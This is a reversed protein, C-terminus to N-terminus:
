EHVNEVGVAAILRALAQNASSLSLWYQTEYNFLTIQSRVLNLFDVESVQYAALMSQVTQRAQPIIGSEFLSYKERAQIYEAVSRSIEAQVVNNAGQLAYQKGQVDSAHQGVAKARKSKPYLPINVSFKVSLLDARGGGVAPPNDGQRFGYFAGLTFDPYYDKKALALRSEAAQINNRVAALKPRSVIARSYLTSEASLEPLVMSVNKSLVIASNAPRNLLRNLDAVEVRRMGSLQIKQDLLKSLELQALLVDQQMGNGVKYKITAIEIFQRLLVQNRGLIALAQDMYHLTWWSSRVDRMLLLRIEGVNNLAADAEFSSASAKLALKGPFLFHQSIGLQLQTMAEQGTNYTDAPFNLANLSLTPDPLSGVQSPIAAKARFHWQAQALDPNNELAMDVAADLSLVKSTGARTGPHSEANVGFSFQAIILLILLVDILNNRNYSCM